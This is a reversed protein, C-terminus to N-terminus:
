EVWGGKITRELVRWERNKKAWWLLVERELGLGINM